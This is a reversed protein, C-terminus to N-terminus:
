PHQEVEGGVGFADGVGVEDAGAAGRLFGVAGPPRHRDRDGFAEDRVGVGGDRDAVLGVAVEGRLDIGREVLAHCAAVLLYGVEHGVAGLEFRLTVLQQGRVEGVGDVEGGQFPVLVADPRAEGVHVLLEGLLVLVLGAPPREQVVRQPQEGVRVVGVGSGAVGVPPQRVLREVGPEVDGVVFM